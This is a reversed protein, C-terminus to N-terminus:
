TPFLGEARGSGTRTDCGRRQQRHFLSRERDDVAGGHACRAEDGPRSCPHSIAASEPCLPKGPRGFFNGVARGLCLRIATTNTAEGSRAHDRVRDCQLITGLGRCCLGDTPTETEASAPFLFSQKHEAMRQHLCRSSSLQQHWPPRNQGRSCQRPARFERELLKPVNVPEKEDPVFGPTFCSHARCSSESERRVTTSAGSTTSIDSDAAVETLRFFFDEM